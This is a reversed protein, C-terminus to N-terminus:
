ECWVKIAEHLWFRKQSFPNKIEFVYNKNPSTPHLTIMKALTGRKTKGSLHWDDYFTKIECISDEIGQREVYRYPLEAFYKSMKKGFKDHMVLGFM